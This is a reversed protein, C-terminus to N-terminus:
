RCHNCTEITWNGDANLKTVCKCTVDALDVNVPKTTELKSILICIKEVAINVEPYVLDTIHKEIIKKIEKKM